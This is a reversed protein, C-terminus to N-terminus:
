FNIQKNIQSLNSVLEKVKTNIDNRIERLKEISKGKPDEINWEIVDHIFLTPCSQKEICCMNIRITSEKIMDETLMKLKQKSIDIGVEEMVQIPLPNISSTPNTGASLTQYGQPSYRRFFGEAIQSRGASEVCVFLTTQKHQDSEKSKSFFKM